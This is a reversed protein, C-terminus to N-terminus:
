ELDIRKIVQSVIASGAIVGPISFVPELQIKGYGLLTDGCYRRSEVVILMGDLIHEALELM